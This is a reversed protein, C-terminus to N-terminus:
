KTILFAYNGVRSKELNFKKIINETAWLGLHILKGEKLKKIQKTRELALIKYGPYSSDPELKTIFNVIQKWESESVIIRGHISCEFFSIYGYNYNIIKM